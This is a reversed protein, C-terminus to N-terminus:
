SGTRRAAWGPAHGRWRSGSRRGRRRGACWWTAIWRWATTPSRWMSGAGGPSRAVRSRCRGCATRRRSRRGAGADRVALSLRLRVPLPGEALDQRVRGEDPVRGAAGLYRPAATTPFRWEWAGEELWRLPQDITLAAVVEAGPPINGIEQSFLSSREQEVLGATHGEILAREFRERAAQRRDIEGVIRRDGVTFAYGGVAADAPLPFSYTVTLPVDAANRFRQELVVEALGGRASATLTAATLPLARGDTSVLTGGSADHPASPVPLSMM